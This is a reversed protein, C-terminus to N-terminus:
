SNPAPLALIIKKWNHVEYNTIHMNWLRGFVHDFMCVFKIDREGHVAVVLQFSRFNTNVLDGPKLDAFKM